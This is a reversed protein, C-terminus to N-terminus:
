RPAMRIAGDLRVDEGNFYGNECMEVALRAFEEPAGLRKPFPVSAALAAKVNDPAAHLLPTNFIGPLITNVRIGENMLDRAIPLTMGVVGAKSASYAAQGIQGDEAAVSATNVVVGREGDELPELTLMGAASAAICRFTGVLNIQIIKDFLATSFSKIEGTKKDRGATKIALGTGACNVLIREQGLAARAKAFGAEVQEDSTVDVKCFVAGIEEAVAQGQAENFDFIAVKAGRTALLRATALGLGSAGGTVIAAVSGDIKM